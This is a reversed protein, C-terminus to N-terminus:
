DRGGYALENMMRTFRAWSVRKHTQKHRGWWYLSGRGIQLEGVKEGDAYIQLTLASKAKALTFNSLEAKVEHKRAAKKKTKAM